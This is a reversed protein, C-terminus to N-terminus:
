KQERKKGQDEPTGPLVIIGSGEQSGVTTTERCNPCKIAFIGVNRLTQEDVKFEHQNCWCCHITLTM